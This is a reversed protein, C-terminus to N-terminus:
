EKFIPDGFEDTEVFDGFGGWGNHESIRLSIKEPPTGVISTIADFTARSFASKIEIAFHGCMDLEVYVFDEQEKDAVFMTMADEILLFIVKKHPILKVAKSLEQSLSQKQDHTLKKTMNLKIYPM